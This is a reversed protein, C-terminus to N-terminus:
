CIPSFLSIIFNLSSYQASICSTEWGMNAFLRAFSEQPSPAQNITSDGNVGGHSILVFFMHHRRCRYQFFWSFKRTLLLRLFISHHSGSEVSKVSEM